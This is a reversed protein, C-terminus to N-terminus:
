LQALAFTLAKSFFMGEAIEVQNQLAFQCFGQMFWCAQETCVVELELNEANEALTVTDMGHGVEYFCKGVYDKGNM